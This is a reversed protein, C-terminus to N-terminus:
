SNDKVAFITSSGYGGIHGDPLVELPLFGQDRLARFVYRMPLCHMEMEPPEARIYESADFSYRPWSTVMQFLAVAGPNAKGLIKRLMINQLPPNNHQFVIVSLFADFNDIDDFTGMGETQLCRVNRLNLHSMRDRCIALNGASIDTAQVTEFRRALHETVRGVGCGLEFCAGQPRPVENRDCFIDILSAVAGGTRYFEEIRRDTLGDRRFREDTLVSWYPDSEGLKGWQEAVREYLKDLMGDSPRVEVTGGPLDLNLKVTEIYSPFTAQFEESSVFERRLTEMTHNNNVKQRVVAESEPDRNLFYRYAKRVDEAGVRKEGGSRKM